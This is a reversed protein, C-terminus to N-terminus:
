EGNSMFEVIKNAVFIAQEDSMESFIPLSLGQSALQESIPFDGVQHGLDAYANQLHVPIPYHLGSSAGMKGLYKQLDDRRGDAVQIVYLHYVHENYDAVFPTTIGPVNGLIEDYIAARSRRAANWDDLHPLKIGLVAAQLNDLRDCYGVVLHEYKVEQGHNHLLRMKAALDDDDTAVAGGDGYAGLNKGPYFSFCSIDGFTGIRQGKHSAGHAQAADEIVYLNHRRAITMIEQMDAPQGYLHVPLVAKTKDTIAAELKNPDLNYTQADAEVFVVTAGTHSIAECTAIYTDPVTIVEDGPGIDLAVLALRLASTGSGVGVVHKVGIYEAFAKEFSKVEPGMIFATRNLVSQIAEDMQPQLARYQAKLDVFPVNM